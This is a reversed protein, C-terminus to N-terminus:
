TFSPLAALESGASQQSGGKAAQLRCSMPLLEAGKDFVTKKTTQSSELSGLHLLLNSLDFAAADNKLKQLDNPELTFSIEAGDPSTFTVRGTNIASQHSSGTSPPRPPLTPMPGQTYM